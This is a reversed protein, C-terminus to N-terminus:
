TLADPACLIDLFIFKIVFLLLTFFYIFTSQPLSHQVPHWRCSYVVSYCLLCMKVVTLVESNQTCLIGEFLIESCIIFLLVSFM